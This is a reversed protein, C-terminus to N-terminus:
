SELSEVVQITTKNEKAAKKLETTQKEIASVTPDKGRNTMAAVIASYAETSGRSLAGAVKMDKKAVEGPTSEGEVPSAPAIGKTPDYAKTITERSKVLGDTLKKRTDEMSKGLSASTADINSRMAKEFDTSVREPIDPLKSIASRAGETLPTWDVEFGNGKIFSLVGAWMKRINDGLNIFITLTYDVATFLIDQWNDAFWTVYAPLKDTFMFAVDNVFEVFALSWEMAALQIVGTINAMVVLAEIGMEQFSIGGEGIIDGFLWQFLSSVENVVPEIVSWISEAYMVWADSIVSLWSAAEVGISLFLDGFQGLFDTGVTIGKAVLDFAPTLLSGLMESVDGIGNKAITWPDAMAKAAGGFKSQAKDLIMGQAGILDGSEQLTKIQQEEADTFAIGAKKLKSLGEIPNDMAKGFLNTASVLDTGMVSALDASADMASFFMDGKINEFRTMMAAAGVTADGEFNTLSQLESAYDNIQDATVGATGGTATLVSALKKQESLAEKFNSVSEAGGWVGAVIGALPALSSMLGGAFSSASAKADALGKTFDKSNVALNAVLNGVAM